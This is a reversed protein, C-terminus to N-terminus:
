LIRERSDHEEFIQDKVDRTKSRLAALQKDSVFYLNELRKLAILSAQLTHGEAEFFEQTKKAFRLYAYM